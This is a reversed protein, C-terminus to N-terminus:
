YDFYTIIEKCYSNIDDIEATSLIDKHSGIKKNSIPKGWLGSKFFSNSENSLNLSNQWYNHIECNIFICNLYKICFATYSNCSM